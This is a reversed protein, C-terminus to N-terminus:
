VIPGCLFDLTILRQFPIFLLKTYRRKIAFIVGFTMFGLGGVQILLMIVLQGFVSFDSGTDLVVLGTVCVASTATFLADLWGISQSTASSIPLALLVTGILIVAAFGLIMTQQPSLDNNFIRFRM